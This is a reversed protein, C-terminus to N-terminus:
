WRTHLYRLAHLYDVNEFEVKSELIAYRALRATEVDKLSPFLQVVDAGVIVMGSQKQLSGPSNVAEDSVYIAQDNEIKDVINTAALRDSIEPVVGVSPKSNRLTEVKDSLVKSQEAESRGNTKIGLKGYNRIDFSGNNRPKVKTANRKGIMSKRANGKTNLSKRDSSTVGVNGDLSKNPKESHTQPPISLNLSKDDCSTVGVTTNLSKNDFDGNRLRENLLDIKALMESTSDIEFGDAESAVPEVVM